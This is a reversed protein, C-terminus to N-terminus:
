LLLRDVALDSSAEFSYCFDKADTSYQVEEYNEAMSRDEASVSQVPSGPYYCHISIAPGHGVQIIHGAGRSHSQPLSLFTTAFDPRRAERFRCTGLRPSTIAMGHRHMHKDRKVEAAHASRSTRHRLHHSSHLRVCANAMGVRLSIKLDHPQGHNYWWRRM